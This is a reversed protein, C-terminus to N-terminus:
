NNEVIFIIGSMPYIWKGELSVDCMGSTKMANATMASNGENIFSYMKVNM